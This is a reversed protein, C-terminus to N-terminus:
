WVDGYLHADRRMCVSAGHTLLMVQEGLYGWLCFIAYGPLIHQMIAHMHSCVCTVPFSPWGM